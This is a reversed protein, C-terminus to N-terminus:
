GTENNYQYDFTPREKTGSALSRIFTGSASLTDYLGTSFSHESNPIIILHTEGKFQDYYLTSWEM